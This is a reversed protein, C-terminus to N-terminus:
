PMPVSGTPLTFTAGSGEKWLFRYSAGPLPQGDAEAYPYLFFNIPDGNQPPALVVDRGISFTIRDPDLSGFYYSKLDPSAAGEVPDVPIWGLGDLYFESWCHYESLAGDTQGKPIKFGTVQRAPIGAARALGNFVANFDTCNGAKMGLAYKLDGRGWAKGSKDYKMTTLVYDYIARAKEVSGSKGKTVKVALAKVEGDLPVLKDAKLYRSLNAPAAPPVAPGAKLDPHLSETRVVNFKVLIRIPVGSRPGSHAHTMRNGYEPETEFPSDDPSYIVLDSIKQGAADVPLPAWVDFSQRNVPPNEYFTEYTFNFRRVRPAGPAATKTVGAKSPSTTTAPTPLPGLAAALACALPLILRSARTMTEPDELLTDPPSPSTRPGDDYCLASPGEPSM